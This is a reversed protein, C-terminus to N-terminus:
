SDDGNPGGKLSVYGFHFQSNAITQKLDRGSSTIQFMGAKLTTELALNQLKIWIRAQEEAFAPPCAGPEPCALERSASRIELVRASYAIENDFRENHIAFLIKVVAGAQIKQNYAEVRQRKMGFYLSQTSFWTYGRDREDRRYVEMTEEGDMELQGLKLFLYDEPRVPAEVGRERIADRVQAIHLHKKKLELYLAEDEALMYMEVVDNLASTKTIGKRRVFESFVAQVTDDVTVTMYNQRAM